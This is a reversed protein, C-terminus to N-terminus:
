LILSLRINQSFNLPQSNYFRCFLYELAGSAGNGGSIKVEANPTKELEAFSTQTPTNM